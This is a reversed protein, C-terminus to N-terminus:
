DKEVLSLEEESTSILRSGKKFSIDSKDIMSQSIGFKCDKAKMAPYECM